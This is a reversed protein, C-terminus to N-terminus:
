RGLRVGAEEAVGAPGHRRQVEAPEDGPQRRLDPRRRGGQAVLGSRVTEAFQIFTRDERGDNVEGAEDTDQFQAALMARTLMPGTPPTTEYGIIKALQADIQAVDNGLIRGVAVDPLEDTDNKTSYPNDSPIGAPGTTFTPVLEDDGIVTM